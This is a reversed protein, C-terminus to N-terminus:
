KSLVGISRLMNQIATWVGGGIEAFGIGLTGAVVFALLILMGTGIPSKQGDKKKLASQPRGMNKENQKSFAINARKQQPTQRAM